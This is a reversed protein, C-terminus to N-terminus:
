SLISHYVNEYKSFHTICLTVKTRTGVFHILAKKNSKCSLHFVRYTHNGRVGLISGFVPRIPGKSRLEPPATYTESTSEIRVVKAGSGSTDMLVLTPPVSVMWGHHHRLFDIPQIDSDIDDEGGATLPIYVM